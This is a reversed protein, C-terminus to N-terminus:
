PTADVSCLGGNNPFLTYATADRAFSFFHMVRGDALSLRLLWKPIGIRGALNTWLDSLLLPNTVDMAVSAVSSGGLSTFVLTSSGDEAECPNCLLVMVLQQETAWVDGLRMFHNDKGFGRGGFVLLRGDQLVSCTFRDRRQWQASGLSEWQMTTPQLAWIDQMPGSAVRGGGGGLVLLRGDLMLCSAHNARPPWPAAECEEWLMTKPCMAWVDDMAQMSKDQLGGLLLVRGDDVLTATHSSRGPWPADGLARWTLSQPDM